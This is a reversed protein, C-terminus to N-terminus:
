AWVGRHQWRTAVSSIEWSFTFWAPTISRRLTFVPSGSFFGASCVPYNISESLAPLQTRRHMCVMVPAFWARVQVRMAAGEVYVTLGYSRTEVATSVQGFFLVDFTRCDGNFFRAGYRIYTYHIDGALVTGNSYGLRIDLQAFWLV